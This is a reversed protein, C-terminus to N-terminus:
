IRYLLLSEKMLQKYIYLISSRFHAREGIAPNTGPLFRAEDKATSRSTKYYTQM